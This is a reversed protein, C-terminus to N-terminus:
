TLYDRFLGKKRFCTGFANKSTYIIEHLCALGKQRTKMLLAFLMKVAHMLTMVFNQNIKM